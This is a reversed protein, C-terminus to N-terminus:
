DPLVLGCTNCCCLFTIGPAKLDERQGHDPIQTRGEAESCSKTSDPFSKQHKQESLASRQPSPTVTSLNNQKGKHSSLPEEPAKQWAWCHPAHIEPILHPYLVPAPVRPPTQPQTVGEPYWLVGHCSCRCPPSTGKGDDVGWKAGLGATGRTEGRADQSQKSQQLSCQGEDRPIPHM